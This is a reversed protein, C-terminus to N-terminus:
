PASTDMPLWLEVRVGQPANDKIDLLAAAGYLAILRERVNALGVGQGAGAVQDFGVGDDSVIVRLGNDDRMAEVGVFGSGLKPEIGHVIANEVLPQLLMPPFSLRRLSDDVRIATQLRGGMRQAQIALYAELM